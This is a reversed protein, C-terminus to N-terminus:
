ERARLHSHEEVFTDILTQPMLKRPVIALCGPVCFQGTEPISLQQGGGLGGRELHDDGNVLANGM